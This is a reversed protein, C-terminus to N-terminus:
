DISSHSDLWERHEKADRWVRRCFKVISRIVISVVVGIFLILLGICIYCQVIEPLSCLGWTLLAAPGGIAVCLILAALLTMLPGEINHKFSWWLSKIM